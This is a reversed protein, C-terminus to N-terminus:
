RAKRLPLRGKTEVDWKEQVLPRWNLEDKRHRWGPIFRDM